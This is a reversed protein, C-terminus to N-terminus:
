KATIVEDDAQDMASQNSTNMSPIEDTEMPPQSSEIPETSTEMPQNVYSAAERQHPEPSPETEEIQALVQHSYIAPRVLRTKEICSKVMVWKLMRSEICRPFVTVLQLAGQLNGSRTHDPGYYSAIYDPRGGYLFLKEGYTTETFWWRTRYDRDILIDLFANYGPSFRRYPCPNYVNIFLIDEDGAFRRFVGERTTKMFRVGPRPDHTPEPDNISSEPTIREDALYPGIRPTIWLGLDNKVKPGCFPPIMETSPIAEPDESIVQPDRYRAYLNRQRFAGHHVSSSAHSSSQLPTLQAPTFFTGRRAQIM